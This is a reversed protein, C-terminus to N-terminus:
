IENGGDNRTHEDTTNGPEYQSLFTGTIGFLDSVVGQFEGFDTKLPVPLRAVALSLMRVSSM